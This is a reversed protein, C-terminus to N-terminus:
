QLSYVGGEKKVFTECGWKEWCILFANEKWEVKGCDNASLRCYIQKDSQVLIDQWYVHKITLFDTEQSSYKGNQKKLYFKKNKVYIVLGDNNKEYPLILNQYYLFSNKKDLFILFDDQGFIQIKEDFFLPQEPIYKKIDLAKSPNIRYKLVREYVGHPFYSVVQEDKLTYFLSSAYGAVRPPELGAIIFTEYPLQPNVFEVNEFSSKRTQRDFSSFSPHQKYLFYSNLFNAQLKKLYALEAHYIKHSANLYFGGFFMFVSKKSFLNQYYQEDFDLLSFLTEKQKKTLNSRIKYFNIDQFEAEKMQQFFNQYAPENKVNEIGFFHYTVPFLKHFSHKAYKPLENKKGGYYFNELMLADNKEIMMNQFYNAYTLLEGLGDEYLHLHKIRNKDIKPLLVDFLYRYNNMNTYVVIPAKPNQSLIKLLESVFKHASVIVYREKAEIPIEIANIKKLDFLDARKTFRHFAFVKLEDEPLLVMDIMGLFAPMTALGEYFIHIPKETYKNEDFFVAKVDTTIFVSLLFLLFFKINRMISLGNYFFLESFLFRANLKGM